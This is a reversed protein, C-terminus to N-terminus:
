SRCGGPAPSRGECPCARTSRLKVASAGSRSHTASIVDGVDRGPCAKEIQSDHEIRVTAADDAPRHCGRKGRLQHKVSQVNRKQRPPGGLHDMVGVLTRLVGRDLEAVAATVHAYAGRHTRDAVCSGTRPGAYGSGPSLAMHSLKKAVSSHSNRSRQRNLVCASVRLAVNAKM